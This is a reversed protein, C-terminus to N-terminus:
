VVPVIQVTRSTNSKIDDLAQKSQSSSVAIDASSESNQKSVRTQERLLEIMLQQSAPGRTLLRGQTATSQEMIQQAGKLNIPKLKEQETKGFAADIAALRSKIKESYEGGLKASLEGIMQRMAKEGESMERAAVEPLQGLTVRFGDLLSGAADKGLNGMLQEVGGEGGSALFQLITDWMNGIKTGANRIVALVSKFASEFIAPLNDALWKAYAPMVVLFTHRVDESLSTLSLQVTTFALQWVDGLNTVAVEAATFAVAIGRVSVRVTERVWDVMVGMNDMAVNAMNVAPQLVNNLSDALAIVGNSILVRFPALIDGISEYLTEIAGSSRAAAGEVTYVSEAQERLGQNAIEMVAALKEQNTRMFAIEPNLGVFASFDGQLAAKLNNLSATTDEGTARALGIAAKTADDAHETYFGLAIAQQMIALSANNSVATVRDIARAEEALVGLQSEDGRVRLAAALKRTAETQEDYATNAATAIDVVKQVRASLFSYAASLLTTAATLASSAAAVAASRAALVLLKRDVTEIAPSAKDKAGIVFNVNNSM